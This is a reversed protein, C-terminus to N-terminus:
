WCSRARPRAGIWRDATSAHDGAARATKRGVGSRRRARSSMEARNNKGKLAILLKGIERYGPLALDSYGAQEANIPPSVALMPAEKATDFADGDEVVGKLWLIIEDIM